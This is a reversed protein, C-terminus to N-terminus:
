DNRWHNDNRCRDWHSTERQIERWLERDAKYNARQMAANKQKVYEYTVTNGTSLEKYLKNGNSDLGTQKYTKAM